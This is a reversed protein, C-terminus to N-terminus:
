ESRTPEDPGYNESFIEAVKESVAVEVQQGVEYTIPHFININQGAVKRTPYVLRYNGDPRSFVAVSGMWFKGDLVFSVFGLLGDKPKVPYFQIESIITQNSTM